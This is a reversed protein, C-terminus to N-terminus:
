RGFFVAGGGTLENFTKKGVIGDIVLGHNEQFQEVAKETGEGFIGDNLIGLLSQIAKVIPGSDGKAKTGDQSDQVPKASKDTSWEVHVHDQHDAVYKGTVYDKNNFFVATFRGSKHLDSALALMQARTGGFDYATGQVHKSKSYGGVAANGSPSRYASTLRLGLAAARDLAYQSDATTKVGKTPSIAM